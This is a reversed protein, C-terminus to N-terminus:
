RRISKKLRRKWRVSAPELSPDARFVNFTQQHLDSRLGQRDSRIAKGRQNGTKLSKTGHFGIAVHAPLIPAYGKEEAYGTRSDYASGCVYQHVFRTYVRGRDAEIKARTQHLSRVARPELEMAVHSHATIIADAMIDEGARIASNVKSAMTRGSPIGHRIFLDYRTSHVNLHVFACHGKYPM